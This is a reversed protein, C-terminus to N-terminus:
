TSGLYCDFKNSMIKRNYYKFTHNKPSLKKRFLNPKLIATPGYSNQACTYFPDYECYVQVLRINDPIDFTNQSGFTVVTSSLNLSSAALLAVSGGLSFGTFFIPLTIEPLKSDFFPRLNNWCTIATTNTIDIPSNEKSFSIVSYTKNQRVSINVLDSKHHFNIPTDSELYIPYSTYYQTVWMHKILAFM